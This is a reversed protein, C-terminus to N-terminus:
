DGKSLQNLIYASQVTELSPLLMALITNWTGLVSTPFFVIDFPKLLFDKSKGELIDELDVIYVVPNTLNGRIVAVQNINAEQKYGKAHSLLQMMTMREKFGYHGPVNVEGLIYVETNLASPIYIYDKDMLPVNHLPNGKRVLEIFNVPLVKNGRRIFAHELDALEITNNEFIGISLGQAIAITDLAKTNSDIQYTGPQSVKGLITFSKSRFEYPILTVIPNIIYKKLKNSIEKMAENISLGAVKVDGILQLTLTGDAKVIGGKINLESEGYVFVNFKDGAGITYDRNKEQHLAILENQILKEDQGDHIIQFNKEIVSMKNEQKAMVKAKSRNQEFAQLKESSSQNPMPAPVCASFLVAICGIFLSKSINKISLM